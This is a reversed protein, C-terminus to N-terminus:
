LIPVLQLFLLRHFIHPHLPAQEELLFLHQQLQAHRTKHEMLVASNIIQSEMPAAIHDRDVEIKVAILIQLEMQVVTLDVEVDAVSLFLPNM